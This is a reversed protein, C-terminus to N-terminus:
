EHSVVHIATAQLQGNIREITMTEKSNTIMVLRNATLSESIDSTVIAQHTKIVIKQNSRRYTYDSAQAWTQQLMTLYESRSLSVHPVQGTVTSDVTITVGPALLAAVASFDRAPIAADVKTLLARVTAETLPAAHGLTPGSCALVGLIATLLRKM